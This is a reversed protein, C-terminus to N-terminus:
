SKGDMFNCTLPLDLPAAGRTSVPTPSWSVNLTCTHSNICTRTCSSLLYYDHPASQRRRVLLPQPMEQVLCPEGLTKLRLLKTFSASPQHRTKWTERETSRSLRSSHDPKQRKDLYNDICEYINLQNVM